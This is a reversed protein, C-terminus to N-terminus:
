NIMVMAGKLTLETGAKVTATVGGNITATLDANITTSLGKIVVDGGMAEQKIGLGGKLTIYENASITIDKSSKINIGSSNLTISNGNADSIAVETETGSYKDVAVKDETINKDAEKTHPVTQTEVVEPKVFHLSSFWNGESVEHMVSNIKGSPFGEIVVGLDITSGATYELSGLTELGGEINNEADCGLDINFIYDQSLTATTPQLKNAGECIFINKLGGGQSFRVGKDTIKGKFASSNRSGYGLKIEIAANLAFSSNVTIPGETNNAEIEIRATNTVENQDVEISVVVVSDPIQKENILIEFSVLDTSM